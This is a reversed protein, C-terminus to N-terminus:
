TENTQINHRVWTHPHDKVEQRKYGPYATKKMQRRINVEQRQINTSLKKQNISENRLDVFM